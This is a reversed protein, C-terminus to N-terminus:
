GGQLHLTGQGDFKSNKFYGNYSIWKGLPGLISSTTKRKNIIACNRIRGESEIEDNIWSGNYIEIHNFKLTGYGNRM